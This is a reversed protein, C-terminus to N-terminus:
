SYKNGFGALSDDTRFRKSRLDDCAEPTEGSSAVEYLPTTKSQGGMGKNLINLAANHDRCLVTGCSCIHTRTSLTKKVRNGCNSCDTSTYKPDVAIIERNFVRGFYELWERFISWSVDSISLALKHNKVLGKVNLNELV